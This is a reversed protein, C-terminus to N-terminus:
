KWDQLLSFYPFTKLVWRSPRGRIRTVPASFTRLIRIPSCWRTLVSHGRLVRMSSPGLVTALEM